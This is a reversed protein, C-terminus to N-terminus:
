FINVKYASQYQFHGLDKALEKETKAIVLCGM